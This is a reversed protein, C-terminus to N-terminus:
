LYKLAECSGFSTFSSQNNDLLIPANKPGFVQLIEGRVIVLNQVKSAGYKHLMYVTCYLFHAIKPVAFNTFSYLSFRSLSLKKLKTEIKDLAHKQVNNDASM